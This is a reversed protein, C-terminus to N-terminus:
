YKRAYTKGALISGAKIENLTQYFLKVTGGNVVAGNDGRADLTGSVKIARALLLLGGGAGGGGAGGGGGFYCTQTMLASCLWTTPSCANPYCGGIGGIGSVSSADGGTGGYGAGSADIIGSITIAHAKIVLSGGSTGDFPKVKITRGAPLHVSKGPHNLAGGLLGGALAVMPYGMCVEKVCRDHDTTSDGDNCPAGEKSCGTSADAGSVPADVSRDAPADGPAPGRDVTARVRRRDVSCVESSACDAQGACPRDQTLNGGGLWFLALCIVDRARM